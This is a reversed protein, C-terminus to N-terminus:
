EADDASRINFFSGIGVTEFVQMCFPSPDRIIFTRRGDRQKPIIKQLTMLVRLGSSSLYSIGSLDLILTDLPLTPRFQENIYSEFTSSTNTNLKGSAVVVLTRGKIESSIQIEM